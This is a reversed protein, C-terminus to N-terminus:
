GGAIAALLCVEDRADFRLSEGPHHVVEDNVVLVFAPTVENRETLVRTALQPFRSRIEQTMEPWSTAGIDVTAARRGNGTGSPMLSVLPSSIMLTTM